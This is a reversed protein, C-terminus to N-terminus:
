PREKPWRRGYLTASCTRAEDYFALLNELPIDDLADNTTSLILGGDAGCLELMRRVTARVDDVSGKPLTTQVSILGHLTLAHGFRRKVAVPDMSEPQIPNVVSFGASVLDPLIPTIDGDSHFLFPVNTERRAAAIIGALVPAVLTSFQAPRFLMRDQMAVDGVLMIVDADARALRLAMEASYAALRQMLERAFDPAECLDMLFADFGRLQWAQKFPHLISGFVCMGQAHLAAIRRRLSSVSEIGDLSPWPYAPPFAADAFPAEVIHEVTRAADLGYRVGWQDGFTGDPHAIARRGGITSSGPVRGSTRAAFAADELDIGIMAIDVGLRRRVEMEGRVGFHEELRTWVEPRAWLDLPVRDLPERRIAARVRERSNM